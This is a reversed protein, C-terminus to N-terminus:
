NNYILEWIKDFDEKFIYKTFIFDNNIFNNSVNNIYYEWNFLDYYNILTNSRLSNFSSILSNLALKNLKLKKYDDITINNFSSNISRLYIKQIIRCNSWFLHLVKFKNQKKM